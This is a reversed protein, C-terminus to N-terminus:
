SQEKPSAAVVVDHIAQATQAWGPARFERAIRENRARVEQPHQMYYGLRDVWAPLDWPDLYEAWPGGAESLSAANSVLCFKGWALSEVV